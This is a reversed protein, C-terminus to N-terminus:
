HKQLSVFMKRGLFAALEYHGNDKALDKPTDGDSARPHAPAGAKLLLEVCDRHGRMAAVHLAVYGEKYSREQIAASRRYVLM